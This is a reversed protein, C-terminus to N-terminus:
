PVGALKLASDLRIREVMLGAEIEREREVSAALALLRDVLEDLDHPAVAIPVVVAGALLEDLEELRPPRGILHRKEPPPPQGRHQEGSRRGPPGGIPM